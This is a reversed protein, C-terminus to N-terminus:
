RRVLTQQTMDWAYMIGNPSPPPSELPAHINPAMMSHCSLKELLRQLQNLLTPYERFTSPVHPGDPMDPLELDSCRQAFYERTSTISEKGPSSGEGLIYSMTFQAVKSLLSTM